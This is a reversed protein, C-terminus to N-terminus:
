RKRWNQAKEKNLKKNKKTKTKMWKETKELPKWVCTILPQSNERKQNTFHLSTPLSNCIFMPITYWNESYLDIDINCQFQIKVM